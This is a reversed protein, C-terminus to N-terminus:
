SRSRASVRRRPIRQEHEVRVISRTLPDRFRVQRLLYAAKPRDGPLLLREEGLLGSKEDLGLERWLGLDDPLPEFRGFFFEGPTMGQATFYVLFVGVWFLVAILVVATAL